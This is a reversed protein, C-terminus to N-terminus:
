YWAAHRFRCTFFLGEYEGDGILVKVEKALLKIEVGIDSGDDRHTM